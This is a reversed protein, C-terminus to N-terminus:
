CLELNTVNWPKNYNRSLYGVIVMDQKSENSIRRTAFFV